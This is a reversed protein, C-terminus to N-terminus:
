NYSDSRRNFIRSDGELNLGFEKAECWIGLVIQGWGHAAAVGCAKGCAWSEKKTQGEPYGRVQFAEGLVCKDGNALYSSSM